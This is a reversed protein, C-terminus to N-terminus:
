APEHSLEAASPPSITSRTQSSVKGSFTGSRSAVTGDVADVAVVDRDVAVAGTHEELLLGVRM